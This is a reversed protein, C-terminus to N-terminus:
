GKIAYAHAAAPLADIMAALTEGTVPHRWDPVLEALPLLVFGRGAMRPHPLQLVGNVVRGEYDLLDLDLTRPANPSDRRRGFQRETAHLIQLLDRPGWRTDLSAVANVFPPDLPNPWAASVFFQSVAVARAGREGLAALAARLTAAPAGISSALNAGLAILIM